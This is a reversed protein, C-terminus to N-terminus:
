EVRESRVETATVDIADPRAMERVGRREAPGGRLSNGQAPEAFRRRWMMTAGLVVGVLAAFLAACAALVAVLGTVILRLVAM